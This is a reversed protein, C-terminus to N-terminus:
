PSWHRVESGVVVVDSVEVEVVVLLEVQVGELLEDLELLVVPLLVDELEELKVPVDELEVGVLVLVYEVLEVGVLM